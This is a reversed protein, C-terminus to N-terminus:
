EAGDAPSVQADLRHEDREAEATQQLRERAEARRDGDRGPRQHGEAQGGTLAATVTRSALVAGTANPAMAMGTVVAPLRVPMGASSM